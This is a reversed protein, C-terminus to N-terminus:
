KKTVKTIKVEDKYDFAQEMELTHGDAKSAVYPISYYEGTPIHIVICVMDYVSRRDCGVINREVVGWDKNEDCMIDYAEEISKVVTM